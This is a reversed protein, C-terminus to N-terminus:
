NVLAQSLLVQPKQCTGPLPQTAATQSRVKRFLAETCLLEVAASNVNRRFLETTPHLSLERKCPLINLLMGPKQGSPAMATGEKGRVWNCCGLNSGRSFWQELRVRIHLSVSAQFSKGLVPFSTRTSCKQKVQKWSQQTESTIHSTLLCKM